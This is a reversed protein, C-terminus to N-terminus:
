DKKTVDFDVKAERLVYHALDMQGTPSKLKVTSFKLVLKHEIVTSSLYNFEVEHDSLSGDIFSYEAGGKKSKVPKLNLKDILGERTLLDFIIDQVIGARLQRVHLEVENKVLNFKVKTIQSAFTSEWDASWDKDSVKIEFDNCSQGVRFFNTIPGM